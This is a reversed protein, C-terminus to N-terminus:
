LEAVLPMGKKIPYKKDGLILTGGDIESVVEAKKGDFSVYINGNKTPVSGKFAGLGVDHPCVIYEKYGPKTPKVGLAYKGLLYIPSAGWAHCLSKEYKGGYMEYHEIGKKTPDFEEWITTAGLRIMEGWYSDLMNKMYGFDGIKCM